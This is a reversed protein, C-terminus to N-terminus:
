VMREVQEVQLRHVAQGRHARLVMRQRHVVQVVQGRHHVREALVMQEALARLLVQAVQGRLVRPERIERHAQIEM